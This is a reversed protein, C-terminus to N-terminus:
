QFPDINLAFGPDAKPAFCCLSPRLLQIVLGGIGVLQDEFSGLLVEGPRDFRSVGTSWEDVLRDLANFHERRALSVLDAVGDHPLTIQEILPM